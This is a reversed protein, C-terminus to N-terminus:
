FMTKLTFIIKQRPDNTYQYQYNYNELVHSKYGNIIYKNCFRFHKM